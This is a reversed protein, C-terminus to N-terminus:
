SKEGKNPTIYSVPISASTAFFGACAGQWTCDVCKEHFVNKWRSISQAAFPRVDEHCMCLPVNYVSVPLGRRHLHMVAQRLEDKYVPPTVSIEAENRAAYGHLEMGMFAYHCCFPFYSYVYEAFRALRTWNQKTVVHRIEIHAGYQALNYLGHETASHSGRAGVIADHICDVDSHLSVCFRTKAHAAAVSERAFAADAFLKGNTLIDIDAEPHEAACRQLINVFDGRCLTPEGGTVCVTPVSVGRLLDLVRHADAILRPDHPQPPQPCMLCKCNCSETLMLANDRGGNEWLVSLGHERFQVVDGDSLGDIDAQAMLAFPPLAFGGTMHPSLCAKYGLCARKSDAVYAYKHRQGLPRPKKAIMAITGVLSTDHLPKSYSLTKM